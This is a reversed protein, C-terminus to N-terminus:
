WGFKAGKSEYVSSM